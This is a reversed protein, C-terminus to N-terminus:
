KGDGGPKHETEIQKIVRDFDSEFLRDQVIRYKEFESEAHAKAIEATVKGADQLV